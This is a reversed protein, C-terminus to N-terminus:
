ILGILLREHTDFSGALAAAFNKIGYGRFDFIPATDITRPAALERRDYLLAFLAARTKANRRAGFTLPKAALCTGILRALPGLYRTPCNICHPGIRNLSRVSERRDSSSRSRFCPSAGRMKLAPIFMRAIFTIPLCALARTLVLIFGPTFLHQPSVIKSALTAPNAAPLQYGVVNLQPRFIGIKTKFHGVAEREAFRTVILYMTSLAPRTLETIKGQRIKPQKKSM